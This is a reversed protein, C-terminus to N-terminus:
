TQSKRYETPTMGIHKKFQNQYYSQSSFSLSVAIKSLPMDTSTLLAQSTIVKQKNIYEPITLGTSNKFLTSLYGRSIKLADAIDTALIKETIHDAIYAITRSVIFNGDRNSYRIDHVRQTFDTLMSPILNAFQQISACSEGRVIYTDAITYALSAPLGADIAARSIVTVTKIFNNKQERLPDSLCVPSTALKQEVIHGWLQKIAGIDGEKVLAVLKKEVDNARDGDAYDDAFERRELLTESVSRDEKFCPSSFFAPPPIVDHNVATYLFSLLWMLTEPMLRPFNRLYSYLKDSINEVPDAVLSKPSDLMDKVTRKSIDTLRCPGLLLAYDGSLDRVFGFGLMDDTIHYSIPVEEDAPIIRMFYNEDMMRNVKENSSAQFNPAFREVLRHESRSILYVPMDTLLNVCKCLYTISERDM